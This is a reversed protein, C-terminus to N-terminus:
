TCTNKRKAPKRYHHKGKGIQVKELHGAAALKRVVRPVSAPNIALGGDAIVLQAIAMPGILRDGVAVLVRNELSSTSHMPISQKSGAPKARLLHNRLEEAHERLLDLLKREQGAIRILWENARIAALCRFLGDIHSDLLTRPERRQSRPRTEVRLDDDFIERVVEDSMLNLEPHPESKFSPEGNRWTHIGLADERISNVLDRIAADTAPLNKLADALREIKDPLGALLKKAIAATLKRPAHRKAIEKEEVSIRPDGWPIVKGDTTKLGCPRGSEDKAYVATGNAHRAIESM